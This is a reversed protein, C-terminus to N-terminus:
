SMFLVCLPTFLYCLLLLIFFFFCELSFYCMFLLCLSSSPSFNHVHIHTHIHDKNHCTSHFTFLFLFSSLSSYFMVFDMVRVIHIVTYTHLMSCIYVCLIRTTHSTFTFLERQKLLLLLSFFYHCTFQVCFTMCVCVHVCVCMCVFYDNLLLLPTIKKMRRENLYIFWTLKVDIFTHAHGIISQTPPILSLNKRESKSFCISASRVCFWHLNLGHAPWYSHCMVSVSLFMYSHFSFFFFLSYLFTSLSFFLSFFIVNLAWVELTVWALWAAVWNFSHSFLFLLSASSSVRKGKVKIRMVWKSESILLPFFLFLLSFILFFSSNFKLDSSMSLLFHIRLTVLALYIHGLFSSFFLSLNRLHTALTSLVRHGWLESLLLFSFSLLPKASM